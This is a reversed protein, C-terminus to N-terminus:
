ESSFQPINWLQQGSRFEAAQSGCGAKDFCPLWAHPIRARGVETGGGTRSWQPLCVPVPAPNVSGSGPSLSHSPTHTHFSSVGRPFALLATLYLRTNPYSFQLSLSIYFFYLFFHHYAQDREPCKLIRYYIYGLTIYLPYESIWM